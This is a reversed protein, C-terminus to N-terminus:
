QLRNDSFFPDVNATLRSGRGKKFWSSWNSSTSSASGFPTRRAAAVVVAAGSAILLNKTANM